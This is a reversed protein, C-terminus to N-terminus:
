AAKYESELVNLYAHTASVLNEFLAITSLDQSPNVGKEAVAISASVSIATSAKVLDSLAQKYEPSQGSKEIVTATKVITSGVFPLIGRLKSVVHLHFWSFANYSTGTAPNVLAAHGAPINSFANSGAANPLASKEILTQGTSDEHVTSILGDIHQAPQLADGTVPLEPETTIEPTNVEEAPPTGAQGAFHANIEDVTKPVENSDSM